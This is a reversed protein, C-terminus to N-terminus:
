DIPALPAAEILGGEATLVAIFESYSTYLSPTAIQLKSPLLSSVIERIKVVQTEDIERRQKRIDSLVRISELSFFAVGRGRLEGDLKIIWKNVNAYKAILITLQNVLEEESRINEAGPATPLKCEEFLKKAASKGLLGKVSEFKGSFVPIGLSM